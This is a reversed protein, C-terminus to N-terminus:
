ITAKSQHMITSPRYSQQQNFANPDFQNSQQMSNYNSNQVGYSSKMYNVPMIKKDPLQVLSVNFHAPVKIIMENIKIFGDQGIKAFCFIDKKLDLEIVINNNSAELDALKNVQNQKGCTCMFSCIDMKAEFYLIEKCGKCATHFLFAEKVQDQQCNGCQWSKVKDTAQNISLCKKCIYRLHYPRKNYLYDDIKQGVAINKKFGKNNANIANDQQYYSNKMPMDNLSNRNNTLASNRMDVYSSRNM